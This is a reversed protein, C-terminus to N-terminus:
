VVRVIDKWVLIHKKDVAKNQRCHTIIYTVTWRYVDLNRIAEAYEECSKHNEFYRSTFRIFNGHTNGTALAM